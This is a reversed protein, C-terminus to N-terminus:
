TTAPSSVAHQAHNSAAMCSMPDTARDTSHRPLLAAVSLFCVISQKILVVAPLATKVQRSLIFHLSIHLDAAGHTVRAFHAHLLMGVAWRSMSWRWSALPQPLWAHLPLQTSTSRRIRARPAATWWRCCPCLPEPPANLGSDFGTAGICTGLWMAQCHELSALTPCPSLCPLNVAHSCPRNSGQGNSLLM